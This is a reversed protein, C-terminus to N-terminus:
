RAETHPTTRPVSRLVPTSIPSPASRQLLFDRAESSGLAAARRAYEVALTRDNRSSAALAGNYLARSRTAADPATRSVYEFDSIAENVDGNRYSLIGRNLAASVLGRDLGLAKTYARRAPEDRGLADLALGQNYACEASAPSLALCTRFAAAADEYNGVRYACLGQYFNPWFDQTREALSQEFQGLAERIRGERLYYRGLDYHEWAGQPEMPNEDIALGRGLAVALTRQQRDLAPSPGLETRAQELVHLAERNADTLQDPAALRTRLDAWVVALELLDTRVRDDAPARPTGQSEGLLQARDDWIARLHRVLVRGEEPAPPEIGYRFRVLEALRHLEDAQQGVQTLRLEELLEQERLDLGPIGRLHELGRTLVSAAEDYRRALRLGRGDELVKNVELSHQHYMSGSLM